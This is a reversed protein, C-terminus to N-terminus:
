LASLSSYFLLADPCVFVKSEDFGVLYNDCLRRTRSLASLVQGPAFAESLDAAVRRLTWGQTGHITCAWALVLPLQWRTAAKSVGDFAMVRAEVPGVVVNCTGGRPLEFEVTPLRAHGVRSFARVTGRSGAVVGKSSLVNSSVIVRAGVRLELTRVSKTASNLLHTARTENLYPAICRDVAEFTEVPGPLKELEEQNKDAASTKLCCLWVCDQPPTSTTQRTALRAVDEKTHKGLRLRLLLELYYPDGAQCYSSEFIMARRGFVRAWVASKFAYEGRPPCVQLFDGACLVVLGGFPSRDGRVHQLVEDLRGYFTASLTTAEDVILVQAGSMRAKAVSPIVQNLVVALSAAEDQHGNRFGAWAHATVGDILAAAVGSSGCVAVNWGAVLHAEKVEMVVHTKGCGPPGTLFVCQKVQIMGLLARAPKSLPSDTVTSLLSLDRGTTTLRARKTPSEYRWAVPSPMARVIPPSLGMRQWGTRAPLRSAMISCRAEATGVMSTTSRRSPQLTASSVSTTGSVRGSSPGAQRVATVLVGQLSTEDAVSRLFLVCDSALALDFLRAGTSLAARVVRGNQPLFLPPPAAGDNTGCVGLACRHARRRTSFARMCLTWPRLIHRMLHGPADRDPGSLTHVLSAARVDPYRCGM